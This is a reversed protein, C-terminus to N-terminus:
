SNIIDSTSLVSIQDQNRLRKDNSWIKAHFKLAMAFYLNDKPDPSLEKAKDIYSVLEELPIFTIKRTLTEFYRQFDQSDRSTKELIESEYKRFEELLFEPAFLHFEERALLDSTTSEKILAAFFINADLILDIV